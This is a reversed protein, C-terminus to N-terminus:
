CCCCLKCAPLKLDGPLLPSRASCVGASCCCAAGFAPGPHCERAVHRRKAFAGWGHIGSKGITVRQGLSAVMDAFRESDSRIGRRGPSALVRAQGAAPSSGVAAPAAERQQQQQRRQQQQPSHQPQGQQQQPPPSQIGAHQQQREQPQQLEQQGGGQGAPEEEEEYEVWRGWVPVAPRTCTSAPVDALAQQLPAGVVYPLCRVFGRKAEAAAVAEPARQGRRAAHNFPRARTAGYAHPAPMSPPQQQQEGQQQQPPPLPDQQQASSGAAAGAAQQQQTGGSSIALVAALSPLTGGAALAALTAQQQGLPPLVAAPKGPPRHKPCYALLRIGIGAETGEQRKKRRAPKGDGGGGGCGGVVCGGPQAEGKQRSGAVAAADLFRPCGPV